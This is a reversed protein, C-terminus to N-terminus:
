IRQIFEGYWYKESDLTDSNKMQGTCEYGLHEMYKVHQEREEKSDYKFKYITMKVLQEM